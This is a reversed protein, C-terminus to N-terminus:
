PVTETNTRCPEELVSGCAPLPPVPTTVPLASFVWRSTHGPNHWATDTASTPNFVFGLTGTIGVPAEIVTLPAAIGATTVITAFAFFFSM